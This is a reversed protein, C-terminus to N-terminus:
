RGFLPNVRLYTNNEFSVQYDSPFFSSKQYYDTTIIQAGSACAAEFTSRDNRRAQETNSDARTRIIYGQKVLNPIEADKANNRILIASEPTGPEANAFIIRGKLSPHNSIYDTQKQGKGDLIFVFKGQTAKVTPWGSKTIAENLTKYKGRVQDPTLIHERGLYQVLAKDLADFTKPTFPEPETFGPRNVRGDKAEVTIFVVSHTPNRESWSRLQQLYDKLTLASSRFDLDPVHLVKFGPAAMQHEADYAPQGKAWELGKPHAYRGGVSDAYVDLELNRLGLDLQKPLSVHSYELKSAAASDKLRFVSFLAPDIAQKYSNHSGIVQIQNIPLDELPGNGPFCAFAVFTLLYILSKLM